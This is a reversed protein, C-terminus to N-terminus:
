TGNPIDCDYHTFLLLIIINKLTPREAIVELNLHSGISNETTLKEM